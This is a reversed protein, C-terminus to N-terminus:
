RAARAFADFADEMAEPEFGPPPVFPQKEGPETVELEPRYLATILKERDKEEITQEMVLAETFDLLVHLSPLANLPDTIGHTLLRARLTRWNFATM